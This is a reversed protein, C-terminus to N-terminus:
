RQVMPLFAQYAASTYDIEAPDTGQFINLATGGSYIEPTIGPFVTGIKNNGLVRVVAESLVTRFDTTVALDQSQDLQEQALGPWRGYMKGGNVKDGMAFMIGGHGHDTGNSANRGLRRGFESMVLVTLRNSYGKAVADNYLGTLGEALRQTLGYFPGWTENVGQSEHHDWGGLDVTAVRLGLGATIMQGILLLSRRFENSDSPNTLGQASITRIAEITKRGSQSVLDSGTYMRDVTDLMASNSDNNYRGWAGSNIRFNASNTLAIADSYSLLSNPVASNAAMAPVDGTANISNLHRMLWGTSTNKMGPTGREIYDMADFHSRTDDNLGCAHVIALNGAAYLDNLSSGPLVAQSHFCFNSTASFGPNNIAILQNGAPSSPLALGPNSGDMRATRYNPDDFPSILSLSDCGGRLFVVVLVENTAGGALARGTFSPDDFVLGNIRSGAMAAIAASCGGVLFQRRSVSM